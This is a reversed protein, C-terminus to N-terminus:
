AVYTRGDCLAYPEEAICGWKSSLTYTLHYIRPKPLPNYQLYRNFQVWNYSKKQSRRNIWKFAFRLVYKYFAGIYPMNGSIGYYRFHDVFKLKLIEWWQKLEVLNRVAKLWQNLQKIKQRFKLRSTKRGLRFHGRRTKTCYHTFGLFDFTRLRKGEKQASFWHYFRNRLKWAAAFRESTIREITLQGQQVSEFIGEIFKVAERFVDRRFLLTAVEDLVYNSTYFEGGAKRLEQYFRKVEQHRPDRHHGLAVWGWTDVFTGEPIM